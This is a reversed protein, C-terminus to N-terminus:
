YSGNPARETPEETGKIYRLRQKKLVEKSELMILHEVNVKYMVEQGLGPSLWKKM